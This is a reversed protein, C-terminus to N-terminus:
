APPARVEYAVVIGERKVALMRERPQGKVEYVTTGPELLGADGDKPQYAPDCVNGALKVKVRAVVAGLESERLPTSTAVYQSSGVQVFDVWDIQARCSQGPLSPQCAGLPVLAVAVFFRLAM